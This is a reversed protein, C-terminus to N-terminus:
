FTSTIQCRQKESDCACPSGAWPPSQDVEWWPLGAAGSRPGAYGGLLM